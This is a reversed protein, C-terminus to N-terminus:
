IILKPYFMELFQKQPMSDLYQMMRIDVTRVDDPTELRKPPVSIFKKLKSLYACGEIFGGLKVGTKVTDCYPNKIFRNEYEKCEGTKINLFPCIQNKFLVNRKKMDDTYADYSFHCCKGRLKDPCQLCLNKM